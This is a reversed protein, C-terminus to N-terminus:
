LFRLQQRYACVGRNKWRAELHCKNTCKDDEHDYSYYQESSM